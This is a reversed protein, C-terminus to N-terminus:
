QAKVEQEKLAVALSSYFHGRRIHDIEHRYALVRAEDAMRANLYVNYDGEADKVTVGRVAAPLDLIRIIICDM